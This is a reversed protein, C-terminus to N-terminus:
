LRLSTANLFNTNTEKKLNSNNMLEFSDCIATFQSERLTASKKNEVIEDSLDDHTEHSTGNPENIAFQKM